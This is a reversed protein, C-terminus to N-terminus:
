TSRLQDDGYRAPPLDDHVIEVGDDFFNAGREGRAVGGAIQRQAARAFQDTEARQGDAGHMAFLEGFGLLSSLVALCAAAAMFASM